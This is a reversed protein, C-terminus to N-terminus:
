GCCPSAEASPAPATGTATAPKVARVIASHMGDAVAHAPRLEIGTFGAAELGRRYEAFSLAGSICGVHDGREARQVPTLSDDAVVDVTGAPLPIAEITGKLVEVNAPFRRGGPHPPHRARRGRLAVPRLQRRGRRGTPRM